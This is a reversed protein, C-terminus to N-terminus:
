GPGAPGPPWHPPWGPRDPGSWWYTAIPTATPTATRTRRAPHGALGLYDNNALNVMGEAVKPDPLHRELGGSVRDELRQEIMENSFGSM